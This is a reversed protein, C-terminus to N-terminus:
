ILKGLIELIAKAWSTENHRGNDQFSFIVKKNNSDFSDKIYNYEYRPWYHCITVSDFFKRFDDFEMFFIGDKDKTVGAKKKLKKNWKSSDDAFDGKWEGEGLPNRLKVLQVKGEEIVEMVTYTHDAELGSKKEKVRKNTTATIMHKNRDAKKLHNWLDKGVKDVDLTETPAGTFTELAEDPSGNESM